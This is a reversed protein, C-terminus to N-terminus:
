KRLQILFVLTTPGPRIKDVNIIKWEQNEDDRLLEYDEIDASPASKEAVVAIQDGARVLDGDVDEKEYDMMVATVVSLTETTTNGRWPQAPTLPVESVKVLTVSRGNAEILTQSVTALAAYDLAM